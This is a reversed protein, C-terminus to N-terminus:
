TKAPRSMRASTLRPSGCGCLRAVSASQSISRISAMASRSRFARGQEDLTWGSTAVVKYPAINRLGVSFLLSSHFWGRHQDGGETYLDCPFRLEPQTELVAAWSTGSDIWVDLIDTERRFETSGCGACKADTPLVAEAKADYWADAGHQHFLEVVRAYTDQSKVPQNCKKCLFLAIPVGWIRQRSICWDPRTAIM